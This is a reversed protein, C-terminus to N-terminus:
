RGAHHPGRESTLVGLERLPQAYEERLFVDLALARELSARAQARLPEREASTAGQSRALLLAGRVAHAAALRPNLGLALDAQALGETLLSSTQAESAMWWSARALELHAEDYPYLKVARRAEDLAEGVWRRASRGRLREWSARTLSLRAGLVRCDACSADGPYPVTLARRASELSATPDVGSRVAHEAALLHVSAGLFHTRGATPNLELSRAVHALAGALLTGPEGGTRSVHRAQTLEALGLQTLVPAYRADLALARAGASRAQEVDASPVRGLSLEYQALSNHVEVLNAHAFLYKPDVRAAERLHRAAEAFAASPDQGHERLWTGRWRHVLALDNLAWPYRPQLRLAKEFWAVAEDYAPRPDKGERADQLGRMFHSYGLTDHAQVNAPDLAVARAATTTWDSLVAKPDTDREQFNVLRYWNMLVWARKTHVSSRGPAAKVARESAVLAQELSARRSRGQRKDLESQQLWVEALAEHGRADSRGLDTAAEYRRASEQLGTRAADYAGRELERMARALTVEGSLLRTELSWPSEDVARAVTDAATELSGRYYAILGELYTGSEVERSRELSQLAPVLYRAELSRQREAVWAADGSRRAAELEQHYLGGLVRGLAHHLEPSELGKARAAELAERAPELENMALHGLGLAQQVLMEGSTGLGHPLSAIRRMHERVLAEERGTDHLPALHAARLIWELDKVQQGLQQALLARAGSRQEVARAELWSHVGLVSLGVICVLSVASVTVLARQTKWRRVLRAWPGPRRGLIPEGDLFRGLDEALARASGYRAAPEKSLCKLLVTELDVPLGPVLARPARVDEHLVHHLVSAASVGHFPAVGCLAEYLTAGLGYVDSRRDLARVDGRAQEPAMYAPTGLVAGSQTLGRELGTEQALGFDMVVPLWRGEESRQVLINSPKLDRHIVGLRHAEHIALAVDRLVQVKDELSMDVAAVDLRRGAVLQMAIFDRGAVQGVEYVKCVNPHDIRAQARAEQVLRMARAPSTGKVFKLAVDRGLRADRARYVVGMGGQGLLTLDAFREWAGPPGADEWPEEPAVSDEQTSLGRPVGAGERRDDADSM